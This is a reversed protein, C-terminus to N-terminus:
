ERFPEPHRLALRALLVGLPESSEGYREELPELFQIQSQPLGNLYATREGASSQPISDPFVSLAQRLVGFREVSGSEELGKLAERWFSGDPSKFYPIIGMNRMGCDLRWVAAYWDRADRAAGAPREALALERARDMGHWALLARSARNAIDSDPHKTFEELLPLDEPLRHRGIVRLLRGLARDQFPGQQKTILANLLDDLKGRDPLDEKRVFYRLVEALNPNDHHLIWESKLDRMAQPPNLKVLLWMSDQCCKGEEVLRLVDPYL